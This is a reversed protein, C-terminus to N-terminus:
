LPLPLQQEHFAAPACLDYAGLGILRVPSMLEFQALLQHAAWLLAPPDDTPQPLIMQRTYVEFRDTKLKVRVGGAYVQARKLRHSLQEAGAEFWPKIALAGVVDEDLTREISVSKIPRHTQVAREDLNHALRWLRLGNRGLRLRLLAPEAAAVQAITYLGLAHLQAVTRPGAGWLKSVPLPALFSLAEGPPVITLGDPKQADSAVKAVFCTQALGVSIRLQTAEFVARKIAQGLALPSPWRQAYATLDLYAEDLSLPQIVPTFQRLTAMVLRSIQKYRDFRPPRLIAQPCRRLAQSMPMASGVGFRRAEYSATAVVSRPGAGGIILPAGRLSPDDLQEVSAYFADLDAHGIVRGWGPPTTDPPRDEPTSM